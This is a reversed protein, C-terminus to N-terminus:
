RVKCEGSITPTITPGGAFKFNGRAFTFPVATFGEPAACSASLFSRPRGEFSYRRGIKLTVETISGLGGALTPIKTALVTGLQGKRRHEIALTLVFTARVPTTGYLHLLVAPKGRVRGNFALIKGNAPIRAQSSALAAGFSGHGVLAPRCRNLAAETTTSQLVSSSCTPLGRTSLRGHSNLSIELSELPPPQSGDETSISSSLEIQVPAPRDRPLSRPTSHGDFNVRVGEKVISNGRANAAAVPMALALLVSIALARRMMGAM